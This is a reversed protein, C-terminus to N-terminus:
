VHARGIQVNDTKGKDKILWRRDHRLCFKVKNEHAKTIKFNMSAAMARVQAETFNKAYWRITNCSWDFKPQASATTISLVFLIVVIFILRM